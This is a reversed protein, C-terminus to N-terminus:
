TVQAWKQRTISTIATPDNTLFNWASCCATLITDYSDFVTIALKNARLDAWVNEVPNLEPAYPPLHLLSINDSPAPRQLQALRRRRSRSRGPCRPRRNPRDRRPPRDDGQYQCRAAGPRRRPGTRPPSRRLHLEVPQPHRPPRPTQHRAQGLRPHPHGAPRGEACRSVTDRCTQRPGLPHLVEDPDVSSTGCAINVTWHHRINGEIQILNFAVRELRRVRGKGRQNVLRELGQATYRHVWDRLTQRDMGCTNAATECDVGELVLALALMRRAAHADKAKRAAL